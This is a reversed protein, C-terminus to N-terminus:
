QAEVLNPPKTCYRNTSRSDGLIQIANGNWTATGRFTAVAKGNVLVDCSTMVSRCGLTLSCFYTFQRRLLAPRSGIEDLTVWTPHAYGMDLRYTDDNIPEFAILEANMGSEAYFGSQVWETVLKGTLFYLRLQRTGRTDNTPELAVVKANPLDHLVASSKWMKFNCRMYTTWSSTRRCPQQQKADDDIPPPRRPRADAGLSALVILVALWRM